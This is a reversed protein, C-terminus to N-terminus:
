TNLHGSKLNGLTRLEQLEGTNWPCSNYHWHQVGDKGGPRWLVPSGPARIDDLVVSNTQRLERCMKALAEALNNYHVSVNSPVWQFTLEVNSSINSLIPHASIPNCKRLRLSPMYRCSGWPHCRTWCQTHLGMVQKYTIRSKLPAQFHGIQKRIQEFITVHSIHDTTPNCANAFCSHLIHNIALVNSENSISIWALIILQM